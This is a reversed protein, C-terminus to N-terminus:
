TPSLYLVCSRDDKLLSALAPLWMALTKGSATGTAVVVHEGHMAAEAAQAQHVWPASIGRSALREILAEPVDGPWEARQGARAALETIVRRGAPRAALAGLAGGPRDTM